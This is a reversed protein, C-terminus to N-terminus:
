RLTLSHQVCANGYEDRSRENHSLTVPTDM